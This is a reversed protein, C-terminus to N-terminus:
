TNSFESRASDQFSVFAATQGGRSIRMLLAKEEGGDVYPAFSLTLPIFKLLHLNMEAAKIHVIKPAPNKSKADAEREASSGPAVAAERSERM